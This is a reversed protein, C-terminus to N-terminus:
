RRMHILLDDEQLLRTSLETSLERLETSLETSLERLKTFLEAFM